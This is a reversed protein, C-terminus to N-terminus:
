TRCYKSLWPRLLSSREVRHQKWLVLPNWFMKLNGKQSGFMPINFYRKINTLILIVWYCSNSTFLSHFYPNRIQVLSNQFFLNLFVKKQQYFPPFCYEAPKLQHGSEHSICAMWFTFIPSFSFFCCLFFSTPDQLKCLLIWFSICKRFWNSIRESTQLLPKHILELLTSRLM